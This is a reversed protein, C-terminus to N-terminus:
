AYTNTEEEILDTQIQLKHEEKRISCWGFRFIDQYAFSLVTPIPSCPVAPATYGAAKLWLTSQLMKPLSHIEWKLFM